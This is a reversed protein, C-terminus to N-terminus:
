YEVTTGAVIPAIMRRLVIGTAGGFQRKWTSVMCQGYVGAGSEAEARFSIVEGASGRAANAAAAVIVQGPDDPLDAPTADIEGEDLISRYKIRGEDLSDFTGVEYARGFEGLQDLGKVQTWTLASYGAADNTAPAAASVYLKAGASPTLQIAM